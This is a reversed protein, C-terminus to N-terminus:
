ADILIGDITCNLVYTAADSVIRLSYTEPLEIPIEYSKTALSSINAFANHEFLIKTIAPVANFIALRGASAATCYVNYVVGFLMFLKDAPVTYLIQTNGQAKNYEIVQTGEHGPRVGIWKVMNPERFTTAM